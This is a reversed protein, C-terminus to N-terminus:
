GLVEYPIDEVAKRLSAQDQMLSGDIGSIGGSALLNDMAIYSGTIYDKAPFTAIPRYIGKERRIRDRYKPVEADSQLRIGVVGVVWCHM